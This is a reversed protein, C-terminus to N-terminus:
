PQSLLYRKVKNTLAKTSLSTLEQDTLTSSFKTWFAPAQYLYSREYLTGNRDPLRLRHRNRTRYDHNPLLHAFTTNHIIFHKALSLKRIGEFNLIQLNNYIPQTHAFYDARAINRIIRKLMLLVPKTHTDYTNAWIINCYTVISTVHAHYLTKLVFTPMIDKLRYILASTRALRQAIYKNHFKFTMTQDYFVGLFKINDVQKIVEYTFHSKLLLPPLTTPPRNSFIIYNTKLINVSLRNALCWFYFKNLEINATNIMVVPDKGTLTLNADDAFLITNLAESVNSLDNIFLLFLIPGLVSGQSVGLEIKKSNSLNGNVCTQQFRDSM